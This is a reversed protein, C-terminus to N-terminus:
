TQEHSHSVNCLPCSSVQYYETLAATALTPNRGIPSKTPSVSNPYRCYDAGSRGTGDCGPVARFGSRDDCVLNEMCDVDSDCDGECANLTGNAM